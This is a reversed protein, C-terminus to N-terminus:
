EGTKSDREMREQVAALRGFDCVQGRQAELAAWGNKERRKTVTLGCRVLADEVEQARTDIIGSCLFVGDEELLGPVQPALPIIVDAVINALVLHYQNRALEEALARDALVNGARVTYRERGIGNLAANESRFLM